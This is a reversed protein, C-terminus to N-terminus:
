AHQRDCEGGGDQAGLLGRGCARHDRPTHLSRDHERGAERAPLRAHAEIGDVARGGRRSAGDIFQGIPDLLRRQLLYRGFLAFVTVDAALLLFVYALAVAPTQLLPWLVVIGTVAVLLAGAFALAFATVACLASTLLIRNLWKM